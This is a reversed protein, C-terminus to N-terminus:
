CAILQLLMHYRIYSYFMIIRSGSEKCKRLDLMLVTAGSLAAMDLSLKPIGCGIELCNEGVDLQLSDLLLEKRFKNPLYHTADTSIQFYRYREHALKVKGSPAPKSM